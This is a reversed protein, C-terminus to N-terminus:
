LSNTNANLGHVPGICLHVYQQEMWWLNDRQRHVHLASQGDTQKRREHGFSNFLTQHFETKYNYQPINHIDRHLQITNQILSFILSFYLCGYRNSIIYKEYLQISPTTFYCKLVTKRLCSLPTPPGNFINKFKTVVM